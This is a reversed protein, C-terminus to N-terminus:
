DPTPRRRANRRHHPLPQPISGDVQVRDLDLAIKRPHTIHCGRFALEPFHAQDASAGEDLLSDYIALLVPSRVLDLDLCGRFRVGRVRLGRPDPVVGLRGLLLDRLLDADLDHLEDWDRMEEVAVPTGKPVDPLLDLVRGAALCAILQEAIAEGEPM